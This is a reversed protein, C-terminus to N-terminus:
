ADGRRSTTPLFDDELLGPVDALGARLRAFARRTRSKVTGLPAGIRDAIESQSLGGSYALLVVSREIEPLESVVTRVVSQVWHRDAVAAPDRVAAADADTMRWTPLEDDSAGSSGADEVLISLPMSRSAARRAEARYRDIARHRAIGLLWGSLSGAQPDFQAARRWLAMFADQTVEAAADRDGLFRVASGFLLGSHRDYATAFAAEDGMAIRAVLAPDDLVETSLHPQDTM